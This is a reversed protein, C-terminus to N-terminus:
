GGRRLDAEILLRNGGGFRVRYVQLNEMVRQVYNRTEAIPIREVWDIPDVNADRPDGFHAIWEKVRGRGANYGAFTLIYSGRYGQMLNGLEAAGMQVNYVPDTLLRKESYVVKFKKATDKGAEPTVQMLGMAKASSIDKQNFYSETRAISYAVTIDIAPGVPKYAPLGVTPFAFYDFPLGRGLAEKGLLVMGRGDKQRAAVEGLSALVAVNQCHNGVDYMMSAVMDRQDAAYLFEAARALESHAAARPPPNVVIDPLGLRGRAIQGYYTTTRQAAARYHALAEDRRGLAELARGQWYDGRALATPNILGPRTIRVFHGLATKADNLYRLAIWGALFHHDVRYNEKEPPAADRAVRYATKVDGIDLLRRSLLRREIWWRDPDVVTEPDTPAALMLQGAEPIKNTRQLWQIRSFIYGADRRAETPVADLLAAANSLNKLVGIRAKAIAIEKAGLHQAMRMAAATDGDYLLQDMRAKYDARTLMNGFASVVMSELTPSLEDHRWVERVLPEAGKRDGQALMARALVLRGKGSLPPKDAFYARVMRVDRGDEWLAAEARRRFIDISPWDPNEKIFAIFREFPVDDTYPSRLIAWEVVKRAAPDSMTATLSHATDVKGREVLRLAEKVAAVDKASVSIAPKNEEPPASSSNERRPAPMVDGDHVALSVAEAPLSALETAARPRPRPLPINKLSSAQATTAPKPRPLPKAVPKSSKGNHGTPSAAELPPWGAAFIFGAALVVPAYVYRSHRKM